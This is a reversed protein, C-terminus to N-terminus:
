YGSIIKGTEPDILPNDWPMLVVQPNLSHGYKHRSPVTLPEPLTLKVQEKNFFNYFMKMQYIKVNRDEAYTIVNEEIITNSPTIFVLVALDEDSAKEPDPIIESLFFRSFTKQVVQGGLYDIMDKIQDAITIDNLSVLRKYKAEIFTSAYYRTYQFLQDLIGDEIGDPIRRNFSYRNKSVGYSKLAAEEFIHGLNTSYWYNFESILEPGDLKREIRLYSSIRNALQRSGGMHSHETTTYGRWDEVPNSAAGCFVLILFLSLGRFLIPLIAIRKRLATNASSKYIQMSKKDNQGRLYNRCSEPARNYLLYHYDSTPGPVAKRPTFSM